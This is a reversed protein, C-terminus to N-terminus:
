IKLSPLYNKIEVERISYQKDLDFAQRIKTCVGGIIVDDIPNSTKKVTDEAFKLIHDALSKLMDPTLMQMLMGMLLEIAKQKSRDDM